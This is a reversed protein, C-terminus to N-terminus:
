TLPPTAPAPARQADLLQQLIPGLAGLVDSTVQKTIAAADVPVPPKAPAAADHGCARVGLEPHDDIAALARHFREPGEIFGLSTGKRDLIDTVQVPSGDPNERQVLHYDQGAVRVRAVSKITDM